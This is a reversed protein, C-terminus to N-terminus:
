QRLRKVQRRQRHNHHSTRDWDLSREGWGCSCFANALKSACAFAVFVGTGGAATGFGLIDRASFVRRVSWNSAAEASFSLRATIAFISGGIGGAFGLVALTGTTRAALLGTAVVVM